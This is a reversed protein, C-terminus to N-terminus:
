RGQISELVELEFQRKTPDDAETLVGLKRKNKVAAIAAVTWAQVEQPPQEIRNIRSLDSDYVDIERENLSPEMGDDGRAYEPFQETVNVVNLIRKRLEDALGFYGHHELGKSIFYTDWLWVSGNHYGGPSFRIEDNALTRVGNINLLQPSFLQRIVAERKAVIEPDNGVLLRSHLLHGMNSTRVKLQRLDGAEDRDTGLVFYGGKEDTWFYEFIAARLKEAKERLLAAEERLGMADEYMEAADLLADYAVRQVEVSTIGQELNALTGDAHHYADPSDKWVENEVRRPNVRVYELLGEKNADLRRVIWGVAGQLAESMTHEEGDRGQYTEHLLATSNDVKCYAVLTRVFEPTSDVSAYYPWGWGEEQTLQKRIPDDEARSEHIIRGPEEESALDNKYGQLEALKVVTAHALKPYKDVLDMAVRLSDRGFLAEYRRFSKETEGEELSTSAMVPGHLGVDAFGKADVLRYIERLSSPKRHHPKPVFNKVFVVKQTPLLYPIIDPAKDRIDPMQAARQNDEQTPNIFDFEKETM